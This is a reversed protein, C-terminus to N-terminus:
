FGAATGGGVFTPWSGCGDTVTFSVTVAQGPTAREVAFDTAVTNAPLTVTQGNKVTQGGVTVRANQLQDFRLTLIPNNQQTNLPTAEIHVNLKGGGAAPSAQVRPRPSCPLTPAPPASVAVDDNKITGLARATGLTAKSPNTLTVTFTEDPEFTTDGNVQVTITKSVDGPQFTLTGSAAQYDSGATASADATAYQITVTQPSAHNLTVVFAAPTTGSNGEAVTADAISLQPVDDDNKITGVARSTSLTANTPNSLTVTFTEDAEVTTDGNVVIAIPKSTDGPAFTLTNSQSVYDNDAATATGDGTAYQVTVTQTSSHNLTVAFTAPTTGSNGETVTVDAISLTPGSDDDQITGAAQATAITAHAPSSLTVTLTEDPEVRTDGNVVVAITKSTDGPAFTLTNSQAVYDNDATTATGDSTAYQVAVTEASSPNLTVPFNLLTTGSDGETVKADGVFLSPTGDDDLITLSATTQSDLIAGGTPDSLTLNVTKSPEPVSDNVIPVSVTASAQGDVFNVSIPTNDFDGPATATGNSPTLTAGVAGLTFGSRTVTVSATGAGEGIGYSAASLGLAGHVGAGNATLGEFNTFTVPQVSAATFTGNAATGTFGIGTLGTINFDILDGPTASPGAANLSISMTPAPTVTATDQGSGTNVTVSTLGSYVLSGGSGFLQTAGLGTPGINLHDAGTSATDDVIVKSVGGGGIVSVGSFIQKTSGTDGINVTDFGSGDKVSLPLAARLSKVNVVNVGDGLNLIVQDLATTTITSATGSTQSITTTLVATSVTYTSAASPGDVTLTDSGTRGDISVTQNGVTFNDNQPSGIFNEVNSFSIAHNTTGTEVNVNIGTTRLSFDLTDSGGGGDVTVVSTGSPDASLRFTDAGSGTTFANVTGAAPGTVTSSVTINNGGNGAKLALNAYKGAAGNLSITAPALGTVQTSSVQINNHSGSDASGDLTAAWTGIDTMSLTVQGNINALSGANGITITDNGSIGDVIVPATNATGLVTVQDDSPAPSGPTQTRLTVSSLGGATGGYNVSCTCGALSGSAVLQARKAGSYDVTLDLMTTGLGSTVTMGSNTLAIDPRSTVASYTVDIEDDTGAGASTNTITVPTTTDFSELQYINGGGADDFTLSTVRGGGAGRSITVFSSSASFSLVGGTHDVVTIPALADGIFYTETGTNYSVSVLDSDSAAGLWSLKANGSSNPDLDITLTAAFASGPALLLVALAAVFAAVVSAAWRKAQVAAAMAIVTYVQRRGTSWMVM